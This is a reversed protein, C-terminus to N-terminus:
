DPRAQIIVHLYIPIVVTAASVGEGPPVQLPAGIVLKPIGRPLWEVPVGEMPMLCELLDLELDDLADEYHDLGANVAGIVNFGSHKRIGNAGHKPDLDKGKQVVILPYACTSANIVENFWGSKVNTGAHTRYGAGPIITGLRAKLARRGESLLNLAPM